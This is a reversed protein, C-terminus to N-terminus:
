LRGKVFERVAEAQVGGAGLLQLIPQDHWEGDAVVTVVKGEEQVERIRRDVERIVDVLVEDAGGCIFVQDVVGDLGKWWGEPASLPENYADKAAGGLFSSSWRNGAVASVVDKNANTRM